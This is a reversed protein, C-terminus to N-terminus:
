IGDVWNVWQAPVGNSPASGNKPQNKIYIYGGIATNVIASPLYVSWLYHGFSRKRGSDGFCLVTGMFTRRMGYDSRRREGRCQLNCKPARAYNSRCEPKFTEMEQAVEIPWKQILINGSPCTLTLQCYTPHYLPDTKFKGSFQGEEVDARLGCFSIETGGQTEFSIDTREGFRLVETPGTLSVIKCPKFKKPPKYPVLKGDPGPTLYEDLTDVASGSGVSRNSTDGLYIYNNVIIPQTPPTKGPRIEVWEKESKNHSSRSATHVGAPKKKAPKKAVTKKSSSAKHQKLSADTTKEDTIKHHILTDQARASEIRTMGLLFLFILTAKKV